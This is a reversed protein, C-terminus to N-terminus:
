FKPAVARLNYNSTRQIYSSIANSAWYLPSYVAIARGIQSNGTRETISERLQLELAEAEEETKAQFIERIKRPEIRMERAIERAIEQDILYM